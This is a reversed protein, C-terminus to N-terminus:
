QAELGTEAKVAVVDIGHGRRDFRAQQPADALLAARLASEGTSGDDLLLNGLASRALADPQQGFALCDRAFACLDGDGAFGDALDCRATEGGGELAGDGHAVDLAGM